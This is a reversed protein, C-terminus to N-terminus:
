VAPQRMHHDTAEEFMRAIRLLVDEEWARGILQVGVPLELASGGEGGLGGEVAAFGGPMAIGPLGALNAGVTYVDELYMSLPDTKEGIRFAPTPSSPLLIAHCGENTFANDFDGKIKRRVKLATNYYADYYGASLAYTGLMIRRQVEAGFGEARSRCYLDNLTQGNKLEARRGYHIGDYRALNSSAEAPAVIYYAAIGHETHPLDVEVIRAGLEEYVRVANELADAVAPHNDPSIAQKPVGITLGEVPRNLDRTFDPVDHESSTSDHPDFGCIANLLLACDLVSRAMPGIQDLSSAFAVLGYRSVRGYTPKVGFIGCLGAPQRISGGTDSGLSAPVIGAAVAAASGSSSGGTVRHTDWPNRTPGFASHEGSSGMAFEDMNTKGVIIAGADILKQVATASYPSEYNELIRSACTTRAGPYAPDGLCMNDKIAVPVGALPLQVHGHGNAIRLDLDHAAELAQVEFIQLFCHLQPEVDELRAITARTIEEASANRTLVAERIGWVTTLEINM